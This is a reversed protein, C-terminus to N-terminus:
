DKIRYRKLVNKEVCVGTKVFGAKSVGHQSAENMDHIIMYAIGGGSLEKECIMSLVAPYIGHGRYNPHTWCPGIEIDKQKLFTFKEKGRVVYSYHIIEEEDYVVYARVKGAPAVNWYIAKKWRCIKAINKECRIPLFEEELNIHSFRSSDNVYLEYAMAKWGKRM